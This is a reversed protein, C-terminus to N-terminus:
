VTIASCETNVFLPLEGFKGHQVIGHRTVADSATIHPARSPRIEDLIEWEAARTHHSSWWLWVPQSKDVTNRLRRRGFEQTAPWISFHGLVHVFLHLFTQHHHPLTLLSFLVIKELKRPLSLVQSRAGIWYFLVLPLKPTELIPLSVLDLAM